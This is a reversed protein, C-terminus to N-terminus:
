CRIRIKYIEDKEIVIFIVQIEEIESSASILGFDLEDDDDHDHGDFMKDDVVFV